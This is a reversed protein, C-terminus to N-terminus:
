AAARHVLQPESGKTATWKDLMHGAIYTNPQVCVLPRVDAKETLPAYPSAYPLFIAGEVLFPAWIPWATLVDVVTLVHHGFRWVDGKKLEHRPEGVSVDGSELLSGDGPETGSSDLLLAAMEDETYLSGALGDPEEAMDHLLASLATEDWSALEGARNDALMIRKARADDVDVWLVPVSPLGQKGASRFRHNGVLIHGTSRQVVCAGFFGNAEISEEIADTNGKRPNAPHEQLLDLNVLEFAQDLVSAM